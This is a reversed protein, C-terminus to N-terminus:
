WHPTKILKSQKWVQFNRNIQWSCNEITSIYKKKNVAYKLVYAPVMSTSNQRFKAVRDTHQDCTIQWGSVFLLYIKSSLRLQFEWRLIVLQIRWHHPWRATKVLTSITKRASGMSTKTLQLRQVWKISISYEKATTGLYPHLKPFIM